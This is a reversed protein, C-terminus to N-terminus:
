TKGNTIRIKIKKHIPYKIIRKIRNHQQQLGSSSSFGLRQVIMKKIIELIIINSEEMKCKTPIDM